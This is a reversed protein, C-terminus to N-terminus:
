LKGPARIDNVPPACKRGLAMERTSCIVSSLLVVVASASASAAADGLTRLESGGCDDVAVKAFWRNAYPIELGFRVEYQVDASAYAARSYAREHRCPPGM